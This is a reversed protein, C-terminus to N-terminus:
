KRYPPLGTKQGHLKNPILLGLGPTDVELGVVWVVVSVVEEVVLVVVVVVVNDVVVEMVVGDVVAAVGYVAVSLAIDVIYDQVCRSSSMKKMALVTCTNIQRTM